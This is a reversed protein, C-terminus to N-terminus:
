SGLHHAGMLIRTPHLDTHEIPGPKRANRHAAAVIHHHHHWYLQNGAIFYHYNFASPNAM